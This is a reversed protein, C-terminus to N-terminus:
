ARHRQAAGPQRRITGTARNRRAIHFQVRGDESVVVPAHAVFLGDMSATFIHAFGRSAVFDLMAARDDWDFARNPHMLATGGFAESGAGRSRREGKRERRRSKAAAAARRQKIEPSKAPDPRDLPLM